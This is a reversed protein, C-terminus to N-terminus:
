WSEGSPKILLRVGGMLLLIIGPQYLELDLQQRSLEVQRPLPPPYHQFSM